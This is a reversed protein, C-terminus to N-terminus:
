YFFNKGVIQLVIYTCLVLVLPVFTELLLDCLGVRGLFIYNVDIRYLSKYIVYLFSFMPTCQHLSFWLKFISYTECFLNSSFYQPCIVLFLFVQVMEQCINIYSEKNDSWNKSVFYNM